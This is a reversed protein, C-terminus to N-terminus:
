ILARRLTLLERDLQEAHETPTKDPLKSREGLDYLQHLAKTAEFKATAMDKRSLAEGDEVLVVLDNFLTFGLSEEGYKLLPDIEHIFKDKEAILAAQSLGYYIKLLSITRDEPHAARSGADTLESEIREVLSGITLKSLCGQAPQEFAIFDDNRYLFPIDLHELVLPSGDYVMAQCWLGIEVSRLYHKVAMPDELPDITAMNEDLAVIVENHTPELISLLETTSVFHVGSFVDYDATTAVGYAKLGTPIIQLPYIGAESDFVSQFAESLDM